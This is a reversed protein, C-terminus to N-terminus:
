RGLHPPQRVSLVKAVRLLSPSTQMGARRATRREAADEGVFVGSSAKGSLGARKLALRFIAPTSKDLGVDGSLLVLEEDFFPTLESKDLAERVDATDITGTNSIVGLRLREASLKTLGEVVGPLVTFGVFTGDSQVIPDVLTAGLDFFLVSVVPQVPM